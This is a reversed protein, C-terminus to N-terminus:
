ICNGPLRGILIVVGNEESHCYSEASQIVNELFMIKFTFPLTTGIILYNLVVGHLCVPFHLYLAVM